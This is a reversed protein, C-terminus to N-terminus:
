PCSSPGMEFSYAGFNEYVVVGSCGDMRFHWVQDATGPPLWNLSDARLKGPDPRASVVGGAWRWLRLPRYRAPIMASCNKIKGASVVLDDLFNVDQKFHLSLTSEGDTYCMMKNERGGLIPAPGLIAEVRAPSQGLAIPGVWLHKSVLTPMQRGFGAAVLIAILFIRFV